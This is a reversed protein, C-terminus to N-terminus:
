WTRPPASNPRTSRFVGPHHSPLPKEHPSPAGEDGASPHTPAPPAARCPTHPAAGLLSSSLRSQVPQPLLELLSPWAPLVGATALDQWPESFSGQAQAELSGRETASLVAADCRAQPPKLSAGALSLSPLLLTPFYYVPPRQPLLLLLLAKSPVWPCPPPDATSPAGPAPVSRESTTRSPTSCDSNMSAMSIISMQRYSRLMSRPRGVRRDEFDPQLRPSCPPSCGARPQLPREQARLRGWGGGASCPPAAPCPLASCLVRPPSFGPPPQKQFSNPQGKNRTEPLQDRLGQSTGKTRRPPGMISM